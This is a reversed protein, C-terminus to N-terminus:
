ISRLRERAIHSRLPDPTKIFACLSVKEIKDDDWIIEVTKPAKAPSPALEVIDAEQEEIDIEM